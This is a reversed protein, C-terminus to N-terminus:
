LEERKEHVKDALKNDNIQFCPSQDVQNQENM